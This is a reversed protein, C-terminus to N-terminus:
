QNDGGGRGNNVTIAWVGSPGSSYYWSGDAGNGSEFIILAYSQYTGDVSVGTFVGTGNSLSGTMMGVLSGQALIQSATAGSLLGNAGVILLTVNANNSTDTNGLADQATVNVNFTSNPDVSTLVNSDEDVAAVGFQSFYLYTTYVGTFDSDANDTVTVTQWGLSYLYVSFSGAGNTLRTSNPLGAASDSSTFQVIGAYHNALVGYQDYAVVTLTFGAGSTYTDDTSYVAFTVAAQHVAINANASLGSDSTDTATLTQSGDSPLFATFTGVGGSLVTNPPLQTGSGGGGFHVTGNYGTAM